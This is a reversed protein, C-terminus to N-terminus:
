SEPSERDMTENEELFTRAATIGERISVPADDPVATVKDNRGLLAEALERASMLGHLDRFNGLVANVSEGVSLARGNRSDTLPDTAGTLFDNLETLTDVFAETRGEYVPDLDFLSKEINVERLGM